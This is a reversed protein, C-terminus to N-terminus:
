IGYLHSSVFSEFEYFNVSYKFGDSSTVMNLLGM